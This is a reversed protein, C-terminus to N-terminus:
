IIEKKDQLRHGENACVFRCSIIKDDSARKNTYKKRVEFGKQAGYNLWFIWAVHSNRFKIGTHPIFDFM